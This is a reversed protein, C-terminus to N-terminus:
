KKAWRSPKKPSVLRGTLSSMDPLSRSFTQRHHAAIKGTLVRAESDEDCEDAWRASDPVSIPTFSLQPLSKTEEERSFIYVPDWDFEKEGDSIAPIQDFAIEIMHPRMSRLQRIIEPSLSVNGLPLELLARVKEGIGGEWAACHWPTMEKYNKEQLLSPWRDILMAAVVSRKERDRGWNSQFLKHLPTNGEIDALPRAQANLLVKVTESDAYGMAFHLATRQTGTDEGGCKKNVSLLGPEVAHIFDRLMSAAAVSSALHMMITMGQGDCTNVNANNDILMKTVSRMNFPEQSDYIGDRAMKKYLRMLPTDGSCGRADIVGLKEKMRCRRLLVRMVKILPTGVTWQEGQQFKGNIAHHLTMDDGMDDLPLCAVDAGNELLLNIMDVSRIAAAKMLPTQGDYSHRNIVEKVNVRSECWAELTCAVKEVEGREVLRCLKSDQTGRDSVRPPKMAYMSSAFLMACSVVLLRCKIM